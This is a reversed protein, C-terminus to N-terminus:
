NEKERFSLLKDRYFEYQKRRMKIEAPLGASIDNCLSEFRDLIKVIREQEALPPLPIKIDNLASPTVEIVKTGHALKKKQEFFNNSHFYYSLFKASQNHHIIATHGSVAVAENGLWAVCSCVDEVNESTVAMIIDNKTAIKSKKFVDESIYTLVKDAYTRFHTYMQGYHICPKGEEVFDKKQFNGGRVVTAIEGLRVVAYGFVYQLLRIEDTRNQETRNQETLITNGREAFTLLLDRYYEYQKKRADIEAPLGIKLDSCIADFNDLINVIRRQVEIPPISIEMKEFVDRSIRPISGRRVRSDIFSQKTQLFYFIYKSLVGNLDDFTFCDDAAWFDIPSYGIQGAAGASIVFTTDKKRNSKDFYGLPTLANQYVPIEGESVLMDRTVRIGRNIKAVEGLTTEVPEVVTNGASDVVENKATGIVPFTGNTASGASALLADRYYEYQVRRAELEAELEAELSTFKDLIRVIEEQVPLPPVPIKINMLKDPTVEIVKTGHALKIKQAFFSESHFFYSMYKPNQNHHIIATHGSVAINEKGLWAVCSCVDEINESTVAMVIDNPQAYKSKKFIEESVFTITKDTSNKFHTYLQGYHICPKGEEVFDKKQFNGGRFITAVEGLPKYEVGDPCLENILENLRTM